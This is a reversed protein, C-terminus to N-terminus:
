RAVRAPPKTRPALPEATFVAKFTLRLDRPLNRAVYRGLVVERGPIVAGTADPPAPEFTVIAGPLHYWLEPEFKATSEERGSLCRIEVQGNPHDPTPRRFHVSVQGSGEAQFLVDNITPPAPQGAVPASAGEVEMTVRVSGRAGSFPYSSPTPEDEASFVHLNSKQQRISLVGAPNNGGPAPVPTSKGCGILCPPWAMMLFVAWRASRPTPKM